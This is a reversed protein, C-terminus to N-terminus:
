RRPTSEKGPLPKLVRLRRDPTRALYGAREFKRIVHNVMERTAGIRQSIEQQTLARPLFLDGEVNEAEASLVDAVREAVDSLGLRKAQATADRLRAILVLVLAYAFDPHLTIFDQLDQRAIRVCDTETMAMVSAGGTIQRGGDASVTGTYDAIRGIAIRPSPLSYRRAYDAMCVLAASYPTPNATVPANGIPAAYVGRPGASASICGSLLVAAAGAVGAAKLRPLTRGTIM